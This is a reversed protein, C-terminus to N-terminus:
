RWLKRLKPSERELFSFAGACDLAVGCGSTVVHEWFLVSDCSADSGHRPLSRTGAILPRKEGERFVNSGLKLQSAWSIGGSLESFEGCSLRSGEMSSPVWRSAPPSFPFPYTRSGSFHLCTWDAPATHIGKLFCGSLMALRLCLQTCWQHPLEHKRSCIADQHCQAVTAM